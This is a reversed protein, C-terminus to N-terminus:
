CIIPFHISRNGLDTPPCQMTPTYDPSLLIQAQQPTIQKMDLLKTVISTKTEKPESFDTKADTLIEKKM